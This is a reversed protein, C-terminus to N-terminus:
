GISAQAQKAATFAQHLATCDFVRVTADPEPKPDRESPAPQLFSGELWISHTAAFSASLPLSTPRAHMMDNKEPWVRLSPSTMTFVSLASNIDSDSTSLSGVKLVSHCSEDGIRKSRLLLLGEILKQMRCSFSHNRHDFPQYSTTTKLAVAVFFHDTALLHISDVYSTTISSSSVDESKFDDLVCAHTPFVDAVIQLKRGLLRPVGTQEPHIYLREGRLQNFEAELTSFNEVVSM